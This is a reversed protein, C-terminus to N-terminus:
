GTIEIQYKDEIDKKCLRVQETSNTMNYPLHDIIYLSKQFEVAAENVQNEDEGRLKFNPRGLPNEIEIELM